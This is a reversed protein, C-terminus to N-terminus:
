WNNGTGYDCVYGGVGTDVVCAHGNCDNSPCFVFPVLSSCKCEPRDMSTSSPICKPAPAGEKKYCSLAYASYAETNDNNCIGWEDGCEDGLYKKTESCVGDKYSFGSTFFCCIPKWWSSSSSCAIKGTGVKGAEDWKDRVDYEICVKSEYEGDERIYYQARNCIAVTFNPDKLNSSEFYGGNETFFCTANPEQVALNLTCNSIDIPRKEWCGDGSPDFDEYCFSSGPLSRHESARLNAASVMTACLAILAFIQKMDKKKICLFLIIVPISICSQKWVHQKNTMYRDHQRTIGNIKLRDAVISGHRRLGHLSIQNSLSYIIITIRSEDLVM